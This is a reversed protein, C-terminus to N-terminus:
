HPLVYKQVHSYYLIIARTIFIIIMITIIVITIMSGIVIVAIIYGELKSDDNSPANNSLACQAMGIDSTNLSLSLKLPPETDSCIM